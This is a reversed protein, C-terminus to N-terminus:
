PRGLSLPGLRVGAGRVRRPRLHDAQVAQPQSATWCAARIREQRRLAARRGKRRRRAAPLARRLPADRLREDGEHARTCPQVAVQAHGLRGARHRGLDEASHEHWAGLQMGPGRGSLCQEPCRGAPCAPGPQPVRGAACPQQVTRVDDKSRDSRSAALLAEGLLGLQMGLGRRDPAAECFALSPQSTTSLWGLRASLRLRCPWLGAGSGSFPLAALSRIAAPRVLDLPASLTPRGSRAQQAHRISPALLM